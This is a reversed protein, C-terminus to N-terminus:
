QPVLEYPLQYENMLQIQKAIGQNVERESIENDEIMYDAFNALATMQIVGGNEVYVLGSSEVKWQKIVTSASMFPHLYDKRLSEKEEESLQHINVYYAAIGQKKLGKDFLEVVQKEKILKPEADLTVVWFTDHNEFKKMMEKYSIETVGPQTAKPEGCATLVVMLGVMSIVLLWKNM